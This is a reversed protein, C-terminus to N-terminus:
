KFWRKIFFERKGENNRQAKKKDKKMRRLTKKTQLHKDHQKIKKKEDREIKRQLVWKKRAERKQANSSKPQGEKKEATQSFTYSPLFALLLVIILKYIHQMHVM